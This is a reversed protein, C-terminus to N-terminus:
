FLFSHPLLEGLTYAALQGSKDKLIIRMEPSAFQSLFQLCIGCPFTPDGKDSTVAAATFLVDGESVAKVAAVREACITGGFSGNEVNCGTYVRGNETMLAAGVKFQSYPAYAYERAAEAQRMLEADSPISDARVNAAIKGGSM